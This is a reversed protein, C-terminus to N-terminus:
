FFKHNRKLQEYHAVDRQSFVIAPHGGAIAYKPISRVVVSGAQVIAGEGITVGALITVDLGLWVNDEIVVDKSIISNDYPICTGRDYNHYSTLIKCGSGSHFNNGIRVRGRGMVKMGNFNVNNGLITTSTVLSRRNVKLGEGVQKAQRAVLKTFTFTAIAKIIRIM